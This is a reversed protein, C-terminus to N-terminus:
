QAARRRRACLVGGSLLALSLPAPSPIITLSFDGWDSASAYLHYDGPGLEGSATGVFSTGLQGVISVGDLSVVSYPTTVQFSYTWVADSHIVLDVASYSLAYHTSTWNQGEARGRAVFSTENWSADLKAHGAVLIEGHPHLPDWIEDYVELSVPLAEGWHGTGLASVYFSNYHTILSLGGPAPSAVMCIGAAVCGILTRTVM